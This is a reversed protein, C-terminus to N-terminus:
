NGTNSMRCRSRRGERGGERRGERRGERGVAIRYEGQEDEVLPIYLPRRPGQRASRRGGESEEKIGETGAGEGKEAEQLFPHESLV